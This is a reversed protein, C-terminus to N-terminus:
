LQDGMMNSMIGMNKEYTWTWGQAGRRDQSVRGGMLEMADKRKGSKAEYLARLVDSGAWSM